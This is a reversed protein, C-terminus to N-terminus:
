NYHQCNADLTLSHQFATFYRKATDLPSENKCTITELIDGRARVETTGAKTTITLVPSWLAIDYRSNSQTSTGSDYLLSWNDGAIQQFVAQLPTNAPLTVPTIHLTETPFSFLPQPM